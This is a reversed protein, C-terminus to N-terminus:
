GIMKNLLDLAVLALQAIREGAEPLTSLWTLPRILLLDIWGRDIKPAELLAAGASIETIVQQRVEPGFANAGLLAERLDVITGKFKRFDGGHINLNITVHNQGGAIAGGPDQPYVTPAVSIPPWSASFAPPGGVLTPGAGQLNSARLEVPPPREGSREIGISHDTRGRVPVTPDDTSAVAPKKKV